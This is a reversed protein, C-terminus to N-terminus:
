FVQDFLVEGGKTQFVVEIKLDDASVVSGIAQKMEGTSEAIEQVDQKALQEKLAAVEIASFNQQLIYTAVLTDTGKVSFEMKAAEDEPVLDSLMDSDILEQLTMGNDYRSSAVTSDISTWISPETGTLGSDVDTSETANESVSSGPTKVDGSSGSGFLVGVIVGILALGAVAGGIIAILKKGSGSSQPKAVPEDVYMPQVPPLVQETPQAPVIDAGSAETPANRAPTQPFVSPPPFGSPAGYPQRTGQTQADYPNAAYGLYSAEPRMVKRLGRIVDTMFGIKSMDQAQLHSFEEPLDYADMNKYCPILLKSRDTKMLKLFRSWENRVWVSNFYEPTSGIVLMVRASHLAAFIYPEYAQGLKDELTVAAYFVKFGENTLQYYIDNAVVSDRTRCGADDTEKYCLFVDFPQENRVIDMIGRQLADIEGAQQMYVARSSPDAHELAARYDPDASIAEYSARHCTPVKRGTGPDDVYEIGYKSLCLGWYGEADEPYDTVLKEYVSSAKDFECHLRLMNARNFLSTKREDSGSFVTQVTGCYVCTALQQYPSPILDGGCMKCKLLAM